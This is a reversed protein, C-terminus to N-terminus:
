TPIGFLYIPTENAVSIPAAQPSLDISVEWEQVVDQTQGNAGSTDARDRYAHVAFELGTLPEVITGYGGVYSEMDGHGERNQRPIWDLIGATGQEFAYAVGNAYDGDSLEISEAVDIGSFQFGLNTSNGQGQQALFEGDSVLKSDAVVDLLGRYKHQRMISKMRLWFKDEESAAIEFVDNTANFTGNKLSGSPPNSVTTKNTGLWSLMATEIGEYMNLMANEVELALIEAASLVNYDSKKLTTQFKDSYTTFSVDVETTDSAAGSHDHARASGLARSNRNKLYAKTPHDDRTKLEKVNPILFDRNKLLMMLAASPKYRLEAKNARQDLLTQTKVLVSDTFNAM